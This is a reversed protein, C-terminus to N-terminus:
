KQLRAAWAGIDEDRNARAAAAASHRSASTAEAGAVHESVLGVHRVQIFCPGPSSPLTLLLPKGTKRRNHPPKWPLQGRSEFDKRSMAHKFKYDAANRHIDRRAGRANHRFRAVAALADRAEQGFGQRECTKESADNKERQYGM